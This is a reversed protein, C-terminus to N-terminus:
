FILANCYAKVVVSDHASHDVHISYTSVDFSPVPNGFMVSHKLLHDWDEQAIRDPSKRGCILAFEFPRHIYYTDLHSINLWKRFPVLKHHTAYSALSNSPHILNTETASHLSMIDLM